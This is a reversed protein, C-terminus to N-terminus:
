LRMEVALLEQWPATGSWLEELKDDDEAFCDNVAEEWTLARSGTVPSFPDLLAAPQAPVDSLPVNDQRAVLVPAPQTTVTRTPPGPSPIWSIKDSAEGEGALLGGSVSEGLDRVGHANIDNIVLLVDLAELVNNAFVDFFDRIAKPAAVPVPLETSGGQNLRNIIVLADQADIRRDDNVDFPSFPNQWPHVRGDAAPGGPDRIVGNAVLDDDGRQGDVYHVVIRDAFFEAGTRGDFMFRYWHPTPEKPTPGFKYFTNIGADDELYITVTTAGGPTLRTLEFDLFGVPFGIGSLAPIVPPEVEISVNGLSTTTPGALTVYSGNKLSLLSTVHAQLGDLVEDRNGDGNNPHANEIADLVNDSDGDAIAENEVTYIEDTAPEAAPLANFALDFINQTPNLDLGVTGNFSALDGGSVTLDYVNSSVPSVNTITATTTGHVVFNWPFVNIMAEDLTARFVLTDANTPSDLPTQRAFSLLNPPDHDALYSEDTAPEVTPLANGTPDTIDQGAALDIGVIGYISSLDGGSIKLQYLSSSQVFWLSATATTGQVVFDAGDVNQVPEDFTVQFLLETSSTPSPYGLRAFSLLGPPDTDLTFSEDRDPESGSLANGDLDTIDQAGSLDLGVTGNFGALDGGSVTVDYANPSIMTVGTVAATTAGHVSFDGTDVNQVAQDFTARFVLTDANTLSTSPNQRVFSSAHLPGAPNLFLVYVAGGGDSGGAGVALDTVGDGDLDGVSAVSGGFFDFFALM